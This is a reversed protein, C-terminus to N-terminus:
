ARDASILAPGVTFALSRQDIRGHTLQRYDTIRWIGYNQDSIGCRLNESVSLTAKNECFEGLSRKTGRSVRSSARALGQVAPRCIEGRPRKGLERHRPRPFHTAKPYCRVSGSRASAPPRQPGAEGHLRTPGRGRCTWAVNMGVPRAVRTGSAHWMPRVSRYRASL